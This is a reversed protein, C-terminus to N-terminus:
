YNPLIKPDIKFDGNRKTGNNYVTFHLTYKEYELENDDGAQDNGIMGVVMEPDGDNGQLVNKGLLKKGKEHRIRIINVVDLTDTVSVGRWIIIDGKSVETTYDENTIYYPQGFNAKEEINTQTIESTNVYLVIEHIKGSFRSDPLESIILEEVKPSIKSKENCSLFFIFLASISYILARKM